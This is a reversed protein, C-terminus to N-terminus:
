MGYLVGQAGNIRHRMQRLNDAQTGWSLMEARNDWGHDEKHCVVAKDFPAPGHFAECVLRHVWRCNGAGLQVKFYTHGAALCLHQKLERGKRISRDETGDKRRLIVVQDLSRVKGTDSVEYNPFGPIPKWTVGEERREQIEGEGTGM